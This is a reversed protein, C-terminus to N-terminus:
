HMHSLTNHFCVVFLTSVANREHLGAWFAKTIFIAVHSHLSLIKCKFCIYKKYIFYVYQLIFMKKEIYSNLTDKLKLM